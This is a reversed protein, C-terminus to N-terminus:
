IANDNIVFLDRFKIRQEFYFEELELGINIFTNTNTYM